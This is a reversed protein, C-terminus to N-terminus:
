ADYHRELSATQRIILGAETWRASVSIGTCRAKYDGSVRALMGPLILGPATSAPFLPLELSVGGIPGVKSLEYIGRAEAAAVTTILKHTVQPLAVDGASGTIVCEGRIGDGTEGRVEIYNHRKGQASGVGRVVLYDDVLEIDPATVSWLWPRESYAPIVSITEGDLSSQVVAGISEALQRLADLPAQDAYSWNGAPVLWDTAQWDLAIDSGDLIDAAIQSADRAATEVYSAAPSYERALTVTPSRCEISRSAGPFKSSESTKEVIFDWAHGNLTVRVARPSGDLAPRLLDLSAASSISASMSWTASALDSRITVDSAAIVAMDPLRVITATHYVIITRPNRRGSYCQWPGFPLSIHNAPGDSRRPCGFRLSVYRGDRPPAPPPPSPPPPPDIILWPASKGAGWPLEILKQRDPPSRWRASISNHQASPMSWPLTVGVQTAPPSRWRLNIIHHQASRRSWRAIIGVAIAAPSNWRISIASSVAPLISWPLAIASALASAQQWPLSIAQHIAAGISWRAAIQAAHQQPANWRLGVAAQQASRLGWPLGIQALLGRWPPIPAPDIVLTYAILGAFPGGLGSPTADTASITFTFSGYETPTGTIEDAVISLGDPLAGSEIAYTYPSVGGSATLTESYAADEDGAELTPPGLTLTPGLPAGFHLSAYRGDVPATAARKFAITVYRGSM